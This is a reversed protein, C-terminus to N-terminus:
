LDYGPLIINCFEMKFLVGPAVQINFSLIKAANSHKLKWSNILFSFM